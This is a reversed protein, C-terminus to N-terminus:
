DYYFTIAGGGGFDAYLSKKIPIPSDFQAFDGLSGVPIYMVRVGSPKTSSYGTFNVQGAQMQIVHDGADPMAQGNANVSGAGVPIAVDGVVDAPAFGVLDYLTVIGPTATTIVYGHLYGEQTSVYGSASLSKTLEPM